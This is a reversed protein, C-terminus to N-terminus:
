KQLEYHHNNEIFDYKEYYTLPIFEIEFSDRIRSFDKVLIGKSRFEELSETILKMNEEKKNRFRVKHRFWIYSYTDKYPREKTYCNLREKQLCFILIKSLAISFSKIQNEYVMTTQKNIYQQFLLDSFTIVAIRKGTSEDTKVYASPFFSFIFKTDKINGEKKLIGSVQYSGIKVIRNEVEEYNLSGRTSYLYDVLEGIELEVIKDKFFQEGINSVAYNIIASDKEDLVFNTRTFIKNNIKNSIITRLIYEDDVIYDNYAKEEGNEPELWNELKLIGKGDAFIPNDVLADARDVFSNNIEGNYDRLIITSITYLLDLELAKVIKDEKIGKLYQFDTVYSEKNNKWDEIEKLRKEIMGDVSEVNFTAKFREEGYTNYFNNWLQIESLIASKKNKKRDKVEDKISKYWRQKTRECNRYVSSRVKQVDEERCNEPFKDNIFDILFDEFLSANTDKEKNKIIYEYCREILKNNISTSIQNILYRSIKSMNVDGLIFIGYFM